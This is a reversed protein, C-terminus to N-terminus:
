SGASDNGVRECCRKFCYHGGDLVSLGWRLRGHAQGGGGEMREWQACEALLFMLLLFTVAYPVRMDQDKILGHFASSFPPFLWLLITALWVLLPTRFCLLALSPMLPPEVPCSQAQEGM